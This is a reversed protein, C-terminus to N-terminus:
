IIGTRETGFYGNNRWNEDFQVLSGTMRRVLNAYVILGEAERSSIIRGGEVLAPLDKLDVSGYVLLEPNAEGEIEMPPSLAEDPNALLDYEFIPVRTEGTIRPILGQRIRHTLFRFGRYYGDRCHVIERNLKRFADDENVLMRSEVPGIGNTRESTVGGM